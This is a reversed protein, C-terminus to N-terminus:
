DFATQRGAFNNRPVRPLTPPTEAHGVFGARLNNKEAAQLKMDAVIFVFFKELTNVKPELALAQEFIYIRFIIGCDQRLFKLKARAFGEVEFIQPRERLFHLPQFNKVGRRELSAEGIFKENATPDRLFDALLIQNREQAHPVVEVVDVEVRQGVLKNQLAVVAGAHVDDDAVFFIEVHGAGAFFDVGEEGDIVGRM